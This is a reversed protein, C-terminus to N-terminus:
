RLAEDDRRAGSDVQLGFFLAIAQVFEAQSHKSRGLVFLAHRDAESLTQWRDVPPLPLCRQACQQAVVQPWQSLTRWPADVSLPHDTPRVGCHRDIMHNLLDRYATIDAASSCPAQLLRQREDSPLAQWQPLHLKIQACDLKYRISLPILALSIAEPGEFPYFGEPAYATSM